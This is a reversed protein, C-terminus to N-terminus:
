YSRRRRKEAPIKEDRQWAAVPPTLETEPPVRIELFSLQEERSVMLERRFEDPCSVAVSRAGMAEAAKVYDTGPAFDVSLYREEYYLKQLMKIWGYSENRFHVVIIPGEGRSLTELEGVTMNLSGDGVLAVVPTNPRALSAGMAAPLAYGLSGHSRAAYATKGEATACYYAMLYPTPTGADAILVAESPLTEEMIGFIAGPHLLGGPAPGSAHARRREDEAADKLDRVWDSREAPERYDALCALLDGAALRADAMLAEAPDANLGLNLPNADVHVLTPSNALLNGGWTTTSNLKTGIALLFDCERMARNSAEKAGNGGIVGLALPHDEPVGGKGDMSSVVAAGLHEALETVAQGAGSLHVGGGVLIVPRTAELMLKTARTVSDADPRARHSPYNCPSGPTDSNSADPAAVDAALVDEPLALHAAGGPPATASRFVSRVLHPIFEPRLARLSERTSSKYLGVQDLSTISARNDSSLPTDSTLLVMPVNSDDAEAAAPLLYTAGGGSPAEVVGPRGSLRAYADAMYGTSREDRGLIHSISSDRLADYFAMTTDGPLGFLNDVGHTELIKVLLDAGRM